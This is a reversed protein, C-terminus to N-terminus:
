VGLCVKNDDVNNFVDDVEEETPMHGLKLLLQLARAPVHDVSWCSSLLMCFFQLVEPSLDSYWCSCVGVQKMEDRDIKNDQNSDVRNFTDHVNGEIQM